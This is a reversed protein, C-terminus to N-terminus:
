GSWRGNLKRKAEESAIQFYASFRGRTESESMGTKQGSVM